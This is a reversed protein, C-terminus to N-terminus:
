KGMSEDELVQNELVLKLDSVFDDKEEAELENLMEELNNNLLIDKLKKLLFDHAFLSRGSLVIIEIVTLMLIEIPLEYSIEWAEYAYGWESENDLWRKVKGNNFKRKCSRYASDFFGDKITQYNERKYM